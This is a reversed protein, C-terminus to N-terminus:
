FDYFHMSETQNKFKSPRDNIKFLQLQATRTGPGSSCVIAEKERHICVHMCVCTCVSMHVYICGYTMVKHDENM